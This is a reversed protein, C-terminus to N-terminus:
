SYLGRVARPHKLGTWFLKGLALSDGVTTPIILDLPKDPYTAQAEGGIMFASAIGLMILTLITKIPPMLFIRTANAKNPSIM